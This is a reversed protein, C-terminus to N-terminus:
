GLVEALRDIDAATRKETVAILLADDMGEYDRGALVTAPDNPDPDVSLWILNWGEKLEINQETNQARASAQILLSGLIFTGVATTIRKM